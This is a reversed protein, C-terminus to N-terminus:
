WRVTRGIEKTGGNVFWVKLRYKVPYGYQVTRIFEGSVKAGNQGDITKVMRNKVTITAEKMGTFSYQIKNDLGRRSKRAKFYHIEPTPIGKIKIETASKKELSGSGKVYLTCFGQQTANEFTHKGKKRESPNYKLPITVKKGRCNIVAKYANDFDYHLTVKGGFPVTKPKAYFDHIIPDPDGKVKVTVRKRATQLGKVPDKRSAELCYETAETPAVKRSGQAIKNGTKVGPGGGGGMVGIKEDVNKLTFPLYIDDRTRCNYIKATNGNAIRFSLVSVQKRKVTKPDASFEKIVLKRPAVGVTLPASRAVAKGKYAELCYDTTKKPSVPWTHNAIKNGTPLVGPGGGMVGAKEDVNKLSKLPMVVKQTKCDVIQATKANLTEFSLTSSKTTVLHKPYATFARIEPKGGPIVDVVVQNHHILNHGYANVTYRTWKSPYVTYSGTGIKHGTKAGSKGGMPHLTEDSNKLTVKQLLTNTKYDFVKVYEGNKVRFRLTSGQGLIVKSPEAYLSDWEVRIGPKDLPIYYKIDQDSLKYDPHPLEKQVVSLTIDYGGQVSFVNSPFTFTSSSLPLTRGFINRSSPVDKDYIERTVSITVTKIAAEMALDYEIKVTDGPKGSGIIKFSEILPKGTGLAQKIEGLQTGPMGSDKQFSMSPEVQSGSGKQKGTLKQKELQSGAVRAPDFTNRLRKSAIGIAPQEVKGMSEPLDGIKVEVVAEWKDTGNRNEAKLVYVTNKSPKVPVSFSYIKGAEPVPLTTVRKDTAKDYIGVDSVHTYEVALQATEGQKIIAPSATFKSILPKNKAWTGKPQRVIIRAMRYDAGQEDTSGGVLMHYNQTVKPTLELVGEGQPKGTFTVLGKGPDDPDEIDGHRSGGGMYKYYLKTKDGLTIEVPDFYFYIIKPVGAVGLQPEKVTEDRPLSDEVQKALSDQDFQATKSTDISEKKQIFEGTGAASKKPLKGIFSTGPIEQLEDSVVEEVGIPQKKMSIESSSTKGPVPPSQLGKNFLGEESDKEKGSDSSEPKKKSKDGIGEYDKGTETILKSKGKAKKSTYLEKGDKDYYTKTGDKNERYWVHGNKNYYTRTGDKNIRYWKRGDKYYTRFKNKTETYWIQDSQYYTKSGDKHFTVYKQGFIGSYITVSGDPHVTFTKLLGNPLAYCTVSGDREYTVKGCIIEEGTDPRTVAIGGMSIHEEYTKKGDKDVTYAVEKGDKTYYTTSGDPHSTYDRTGDKKFYTLSGDPEKKPLSGLESMKGKLADAALQSDLGSQLNQNDPKLLGIDGAIQSSVPLQPLTTKEKKGSSSAGKSDVHFGLQEAIESGDKMIDPRGPQQKAVPMQPFKKGDSPVKVGIDVRDFARGKDNDVVLYYFQVFNKNIKPKVVLTGKKYKGPAAMPLVAETVVGQGIVESKIEGYDGATFEYSLTASEGELVQKKDTKFSVILPKNQYQGPRQNVKIFADKKVTDNSNSVSLTISTSFGPTVPDCSKGESGSIFPFNFKSHKQIFKVDLANKFGYCLTTTQGATITPDQFYFHTIEPLNEPLILRATQVATGHDNKVELRYTTNQKPFANFVDDYKGDKLKLNYTTGGKTDYVTATKGNEIITHIPVAFDWGKFPSDPTFLHIKPQLDSAYKLSGFSEPGFNFTVRKTVVGHPNAVRLEYINAQFPLVERDLSNLNNGKSIPLIKKKGTVVDVLEANAANSGLSTFDVTRTLSKHKEGILKVNNPPGSYEGIKSVSVSLEKVKISDTISKGNSDYKGAQLIFKTSATPTVTVTGQQSKKSIALNTKAKQQFGTHLDAQLIMAWAANKLSYALRVQGGKLIAMKDAEFEKIVVQNDDVLELDIPVQNVYGDKKVAFGVIYYSSPNPLQGAPVNVIYTQKLLEGHKIKLKNVGKIQWKPPLVTLPEFEFYLDKDCPGVKRREYTVHFTISGGKKRDYPLNRGYEVEPGITIEKIFAEPQIKKRRYDVQDFWHANIKKGGVEYSYDLRYDKLQPGNPGDHDPVTYSGSDDAYDLKYRDTKKFSLDLLVKSGRNYDVEWLKARPDIRLVKYSFVAVEKRHTCVIDPEIKFEAIAGKPMPLQALSRVPKDVTYSIEPIKRDPKFRIIRLSLKHSGLKETPLKQVMKVTTKKKKSRHLQLRQIGGFVKNDVLWQYQLNGNGKHFFTAQASLPDGVKVDAIRKNNDFHLDVKTISLEEGLVTIMVTEAKIGRAGCQDFAKVNYKGPKNYTHSMRGKAIKKVRKDLEWKVCSSVFGSTTFNVKDGVKVTTKSARLSRDVKLVTITKSGSLQKGCDAYMKIAYRGPKKFLHSISASRPKLKKDNVKWCVRSSKFGRATLTVNEGERPRSPKVQITGKKIKTGVPKGGSPGSERITVTVSATAPGGYDCAQDWVKVLYTGIESFIHSRHHPISSISETSNGSGDAFNWVLCESTGPNNYTFNVPTGPTTTSPSASLSAAIAVGKNIFANLLLLIFFARFVMGVKM